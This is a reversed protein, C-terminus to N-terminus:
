AIRAMSLIPSYSGANAVNLAGGSTQWVVSEVYDNVALSFISSVILQTQVSGATGDQVVSGINTTTGAGTGNLRIFVQRQGTANAAFEVNTVILYVGATKCTLRSNNTVTDHITSATNSEQDLIESNFALATVTNNTISQAANHTVRAAALYHADRIGTEMVNLRAASIPTGGGSGDAWSQTVYPNAM